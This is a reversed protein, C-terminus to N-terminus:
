FDPEHPIESRLSLFDTFDFCAVERVVDVARVGVVEDDGVVFPLFKGFSLLRKSDHVQEVGDSRLASVFRGVVVGSKPPM